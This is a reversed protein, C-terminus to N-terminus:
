KYQQRLSKTIIVESDKTKWYFYTLKGDIYLDLESYKKNIFLFYLNLIGQENTISIPYKEVLSIIERFTSSEIIETDFYMLGTQFYDTIELDFDKSLQDYIKQTTDFQSSLKWKYEPFGDARAYFKNKPRVSIIPNIDHHISMNIDIYFIYKWKKIKENFMHLKNWQFNKTIHRNPIDNLNKLFNETKRDFKLKRFRLVKVGNKKSIQRIFFTPSLIHTIILIEGQYKGNLRLERYIRKFNKYLYRFDSVFCVATEPYNKM